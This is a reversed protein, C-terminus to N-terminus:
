TATYTGMEYYQELMAYNKEIKRRDRVETIHHMVTTVLSFALLVVSLLNLGIPTFLVSLVAMSSHGFVGDVVDYFAKSISGTKDVVQDSFDKTRNLAAAFKTEYPTQGAELTSILKNYDTMYQRSKQVANDWANATTAFTINRQEFPKYQKDLTVEYAHIHRDFSHPWLSKVALVNVHYSFSVKETQSQICGRFRAPLYFHDGSISCM